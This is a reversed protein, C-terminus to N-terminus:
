TAIFGEYGKEAVEKCRATFNGMGGLYALVGRKKGPINGGTFWSPTKMFLYACRDRPSGPELSGAAGPGGRIRSKGNTKLWGICDGIWDVDHEAVLPVNGLASLGLPGNVFFLNPFGAVGYGLYSRPGEKWAENLHEGQGNVPDIATAAGTLADFGLAVIIMDLEHLGDACEIGKEVFRVIPTERLDVLSVNDRNFSEFYGSDCCPRRTRIPITM